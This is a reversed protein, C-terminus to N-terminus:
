PTKTQEPPAPIVRVEIPAQPAPKPAALGWERCQELNAPDSVYNVFAGADNGFRERITAPMQMFANDAEILKNIASHYDTIDDFEDTIPVRLDNPLQGTIAFRELITNIDCEDKFQQQTRTGDECRLAYQDSAANTDYNFPTRLFVANRIEGDETIFEM